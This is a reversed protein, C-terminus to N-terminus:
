KVRRNTSCAELKKQYTGDLLADQGCLCIATVKRPDYIDHNIAYKMAPKIWKLDGGAKEIERALIRELLEKM